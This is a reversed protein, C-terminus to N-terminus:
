GGRQPAPAPAAPNPAATGAATDPAPAAEAAKAAEIAQQQAQAEQTLEEVTKGDPRTVVFLLIILVFISGGLLPLWMPTEPEGPELEDSAVYDDEVEVAFAAPDGHVSM